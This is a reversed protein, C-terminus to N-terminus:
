RNKTKIDYYLINRGCDNIFNILVFQKYKLCGNNLQYKSQFKDM